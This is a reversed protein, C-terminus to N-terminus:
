QPRTKKATKRARVQKQEKGRLGNAERYKRLLYEVGYLNNDKKRLNLERAALECAFALPSCGHKHNKSRNEKLRLPILVAVEDLIKENCTKLFPKFGDSLKLMELWSSNAKHQNYGKLLSDATDYLEDVRKAFEYPPVKKWADAKRTNGGSSPKPLQGRISDGMMREIERFEEASVPHDLAYNISAEGLFLLGHYFVRAFNRRFFREARLALFQADELEAEDVHGDQVLQQFCDTITVPKTDNDTNIDVQGQFEAYHTDHDDSCDFLGESDVHGGRVEIAARPHSGKLVIMATLLDTANKRDYEAHIIKESGHSIDVTVSNVDCELEAYYRRFPEFAKLTLEFQNTYFQSIAEQAKYNLDFSQTLKPFDLSNVSYLRSFDTKIIQDIAPLLTSCRYASSEILKAINVGSSEILKAGNAASFQASLYRDLAPQISDRWSAISASYGLCARQFEKDLFGNQFPYSSTSDLMAKAAASGIAKHSFAAGNIVKSIKSVESAFDFDLHGAMDRLYKEVSAMIM